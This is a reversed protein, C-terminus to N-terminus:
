GSHTIIGFYPLFNFFSLMLMSGIKQLYMFVPLSGNGQQAVAFNGNGSKMIGHSRSKRKQFEFLSFVDFDPPM